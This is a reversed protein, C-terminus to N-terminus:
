FTHKIHSPKPASRSSALFLSPFSLLSVGAIIALRLAKSDNHLPQSLDADRSGMGMGMDADIQVM